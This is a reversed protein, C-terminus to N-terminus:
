KKGKFFNKVKSLASTNYHHHNNNNNNSNNNNNDVQPEEEPQETDDIAMDKPDWGQQQALEKLFTIAEEENKDVLPLYLGM